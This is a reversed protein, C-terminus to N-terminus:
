TSIGSISVWGINNRGEPKENKWYFCANELYHYAIIVLFWMILISVVTDNVFHSISSSSIIALMYQYHGIVLVFSWDPEDSDIIVM